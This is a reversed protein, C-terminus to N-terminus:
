TRPRGVRLLYKRVGDPAGPCNAMDEPPLVPGSRGLRRPPFKCLRARNLGKCLVATRGYHLTLCLSGKMRAHPSSGRGSWCCNRPKCCVVLSRFSEVLGGSRCLRVRNSWHQGRNGQAVHGARATFSPGTLLRLFHTKAMANVAM